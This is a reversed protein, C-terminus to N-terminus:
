SGIAREFHDPVVLDDPTLEDVSSKCLALLASDIVQCPYSQLPRCIGATEDTFQSGIRHDHRTM